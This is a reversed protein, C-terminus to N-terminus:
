MKPRQRSASPLDYRTNGFADVVRARGDRDVRVSPLDHRTNGLPDVVRWRGDSGQRLSPLDHRTNGFQDVVKARQESPQQQAEAAIPSTLCIILAFTKAANVAIRWDNTDQAILRFTSQRGSRMNFCLEGGRIATVNESRDASRLAM